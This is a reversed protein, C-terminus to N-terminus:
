ISAELDDTKWIAKWHLPTEGDRSAGLKSRYGTTQRHEEPMNVTEGTLRASRHMRGKRQESILYLKHQNLEERIAMQRSQKEQDRM